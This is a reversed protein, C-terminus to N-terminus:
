SDIGFPIINGSNDGTFQLSNENFWLQYSGEWEGHRQKEVVMYQDPRELSEAEVQSIQIGNKQKFLAQEKIKNKWCVVVNDALDTIGGTGKIDFKNPIRDESVGKRMHCILHIHVKYNKAAWQLRDVFKKEAAYDEENLGCKMLSDIVIHSCNLEKAAYHVVGLIRTAEVTDLQDYICVREESWYAFSRAYEGSPYCGAAQQCMRALTSEPSMELSAICVRMTKALSLMVQGVIMSKRHGNIGAWITLEGPRLRFTNHTKSWPLKDGFVEIGNNIRDVLADAWHNGWHVEQGELLGQMELYDKFDIGSPIIM